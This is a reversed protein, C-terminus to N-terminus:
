DRQGLRLGQHASQSAGRMQAYGSQGDNLKSRAGMVELGSRSASLDSPGLDSSAVTPASLADAKVPDERAILRAIEALGDDFPAATPQPPEPQYIFRSLTSFMKMAAEETCVANPLCPHRTNTEFKDFFGVLSL